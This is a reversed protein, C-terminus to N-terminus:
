RWNYPPGRREDEWRPYPDFRPPPPPPPPPERYARLRVIEEGLRRNEVQMRMNENRMEGKDQKLLRVEISLDAVRDKAEKSAREERDLEQVMTRVEERKANLTADKERLEQKLEDNEEEKEQLQQNVEDHEEFLAEYMDKLQDHDRRLIKFQEKAAAIWQEATYTQRNLVVFDDDNNEDQVIVPPPTDQKAKNGNKDKPKSNGKDKKTAKSHMRVYQLGGDETKEYYRRDPM